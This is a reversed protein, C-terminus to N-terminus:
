VTATAADPGTNVRIGDGVVVVVRRSPGAWRLRALTDDDRVIPLRRRLGSAVVRGGSRFGLQGITVRLDWQGDLLPPRDDGGGPRLTVNGVLRVHHRGRSGAPVLEGKVTVQQLWTLRSSRDVLSATAGIEGLVDGVDYSTVVADAPLFSPDLIWGGEDSQIISVPQGDQQLLEISLAIEWCDDHRTVSGAEARVTVSNITSAWELLSDDDHRLLLDTSIRDPAGLGAIVSPAFRRNVLDRTVDWLEDRYEVPWVLTKEGAVRRLVESRLFRRLLTDRFEGPEAGAEVADLVEELNAYYGPPDLATSGANGGDKRQLYCYCNYDGVVAASRAVLYAQVMFLQDELRRKGEPFRLSHEMLFSRRFMKHPTLSQILPTDHLTAGIRTQVYLDQNVPRWDSTVKPMVIDADGRDGLETMRRLAQPTLSDDQDLFQIWRGQAAEIGVNRPRGPWGSNEQHIVQFNPSGAVIQDLREGTGDTSGDDVFIVEFEDAALDQASLSEICRDLYEGPNWVPVVVSVLVTTFGGFV